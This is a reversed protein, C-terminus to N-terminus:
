TLIADNENPKKKMIQRHLILASARFPVRSFLNKRERPVPMGRRTIVANCHSPFATRM